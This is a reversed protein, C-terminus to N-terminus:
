WEEHRWVATVCWNTSIPRTSKSCKENTGCVPPTVRSRTNWWPRVFPRCWRWWRTATCCRRPLPRTGSLRQLPGDGMFSTMMFVRSTRYLGHKKYLDWHQEHLQKVVDLAQNYLKQCIAEVSSKAAETLHPQCHRKLHALRQQLSTMLFATASSKSLHAYWTTTTLPTNLRAYGHLRKRRTGSSLKGARRLAM